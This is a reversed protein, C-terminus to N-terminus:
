KIFTSEPFQMNQASSFMNEKTHDQRLFIFLVRRGSKHICLDINHCVFASLSVCHFVFGLVRNKILILGVHKPMQDGDEPLRCVCLIV